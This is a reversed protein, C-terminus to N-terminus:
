DEPHPEALSPGFRLAFCSGANPQSTVTLTGGLAHALRRAIALGLGTGEVGLRRAEATRYFPEFLHAIEDSSIGIGHDTVSIEATGADNRLRVGIPKGPPSFKCANDLLINVVEGLMVPHVTAWIQDQGEIECKIDSAREHRTWNELHEPLWQRLDVRTRDPLQAEADSRALFLLSEVIQKLRNAQEGVSELSERYETAVRERRLTVEVQGLMAAIPTRLQHSADGTFRRQREHSEQLRDLLGNFSRGLEELEDGAGAIPLRQTLDTADMQQASDAMKRVPLLARRSVARGLVLAILWIGASIGGLALALQRLESQVPSLSVAVAVALAQHIEDGDPARPEWKANADSGHLWIGGVLWPKNQWLVEQPPFRGAQYSNAVRFTLDNAEVSSPSLSGGIIRGDEANVQWALREEAGTRTVILRRESPEWEVGNSKIEAAAALTNLASEVLDRAKANLHRSALLYITFSFGALVLALTALSFWNLRNTLTM